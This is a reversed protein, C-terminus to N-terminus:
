KLINIKINNITKNNFIIWTPLTKSNSSHFINFIYDWVKSHLIIMLVHLNRGGYHKCKIEPHSFVNVLLQLLNRPLDLFVCYSPFSKRWLSDWCKKDMIFSTYANSKVHLSLLCELIGDRLILFIALFSFAWSFNLDSVINRNIKQWFIWNCSLFAFIIIFHSSYSYLITIDNCIISCKKLQM